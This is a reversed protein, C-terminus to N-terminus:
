TGMPILSRGPTAKLLRDDLITYELRDGEVCAIGIQDREFSDFGLAARRDPDTVRPAQVVDDLLVMSRDPSSRLQHGPELSKTAGPDQERANFQHVHGYFSLHL